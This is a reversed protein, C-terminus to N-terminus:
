AQKEGAPPIERLSLTFEYVTDHEFEPWARIVARGLTGVREMNFMHLGAWYALAEDGNFRDVKSIGKWASGSMTGSRGGDGGTIPYSPHPGPGIVANECCGAACVKDATASERGCTRCLYLARGSESTKWLAVWRTQPSSAAVDGVPAPGLTLGERAMGAFLLGRSLGDLDDWACALLCAACDCESSNIDQHEPLLCEQDCARDMRDEWTEYDSRSM